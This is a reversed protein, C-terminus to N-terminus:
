TEMEIKESRKKKQEKKGRERGQKKEPAREKQM